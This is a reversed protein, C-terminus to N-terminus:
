KPHVKQPKEKATKAAAAAAGGAAAAVPKEANSGPKPAVKLMGQTKLLFAYELATEKL